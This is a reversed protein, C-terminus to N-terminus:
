GARDLLGALRAASGHLTSFMASLMAHEKGHDDRAAINAHMLSLHELAGSLEGALEQAAELDIKKAM